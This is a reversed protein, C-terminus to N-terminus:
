KRVSKLCVKNYLSLPLYSHEVQLLLTQRFLTIFYSLGNIISQRNIQDDRVIKNMCMQDSCAKEVENM